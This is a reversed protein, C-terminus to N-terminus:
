ASKGAGVHVNGAAATAAWALVHASVGAPAVRRRRTEVNSCGMSEARPRRAGAFHVPARRHQPHASSLLHAPGRRYLVPAYRQQSPMLRASAGDEHALATIAGDADGDLTGHAVLNPASRGMDAALASSGARCELLACLKPACQRRINRGRDCRRTQAGCKPWRM